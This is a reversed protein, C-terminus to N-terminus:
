NFEHQSCAIGTESIGDRTVRFFVALPVLRLISDVHSGAQQERWLMNLTFDDNEFLESSTKLPLGSRLFLAANEFKEPM